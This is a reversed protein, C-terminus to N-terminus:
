PHPPNHEVPKTQESEVCLTGVILYYPSLCFHRKASECFGDDEGDGNVHNDYRPQYHLGVM